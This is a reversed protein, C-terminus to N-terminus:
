WLGFQSQVVIEITMRLALIEGELSRWIRRNSTLGRFSRFEGKLFQIIRGTRIGASQEMM